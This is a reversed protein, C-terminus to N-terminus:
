TNFCMEQDYMCIYAKLFQDRAKVEMQIRRGEELLYQVELEVAMQGESLKHPDHM